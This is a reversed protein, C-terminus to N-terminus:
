KAARAAKNAAGLAKNTAELRARLDDMREQFRAASAELAAAAAADKKKKKDAADQEAQQKQEGMYMIYRSLAIRKNIYAAQAAAPNVEVVKDYRAMALDLQEPKVPGKMARAGGRISAIEAMWSLSQDDKPDLKVVEGFYEEAKELKGAERYINALDKYRELKKDAPTKPDAITKLLLEAARDVNGSSKNAFAAWELVKLEPAPDTKFAEDYEAAAGAFDKALFLSNAKAIKLEAQTPEKPKACGTGVASVLAVLALMRANSFNQM